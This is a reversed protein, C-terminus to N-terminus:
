GYIGALLSRLIASAIEAYDEFLRYDTQVIDDGLTIGCQPRSRSGRRSGDPVRRQRCVAGRQRDRARIAERPGRGAGANGGTPLQSLAEM